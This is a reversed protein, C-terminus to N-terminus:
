NSFPLNSMSHMEQTEQMKKRGNAVLQQRFVTVNSRTFRVNSRTFTANRRIINSSHRIHKKRFLKESSKQSQSNRFRIQTNKHEDSRTRIRGSSNPLTKTTQHRSCTSKSGRTMNVSSYHFSTDELMRRSGVLNPPTPHTNRSSKPVKQESGSQKSNQQIPHM